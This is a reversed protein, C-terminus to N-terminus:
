TRARHAGIKAVLENASWEHVIVLDARDLAADFDLSEIEYRISHLTPYARHFAEVAETGRDHVLNTLSWGDEPEFVVVEHGRSLLESVVGRLFHANGHHW